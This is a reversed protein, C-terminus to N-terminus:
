TKKIAKPTISKCAAHCAISAVVMTNKNLMITTLSHSGLRHLIKGAQM